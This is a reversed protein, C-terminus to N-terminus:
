TGLPRKRAIGARRPFRGPTPATKEFVHLHHSHAAPFPAVHRIERLSLGLAAAARAAHAEDDHSRAGRWDVLLGGARLLPAAYELVVPQPAIARAVAVDHADRGAAWDEARACIVTANGTELHASTAELFACKRTQSELLAVQCAPLAVALALGPLGAGSGIDVLRQAARLEAVELGALSDALHVDAAEVPDRVSTPAEPDEALRKLLTQLQSVQKADLRHQHALTEVAAAATAPLPM